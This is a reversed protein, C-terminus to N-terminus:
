VPKRMQQKIPALVERATALYLEGLKSTEGVFIDHAKKAYEAQKKVNQELEELKVVNEQKKVM